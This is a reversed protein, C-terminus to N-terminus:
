YLQKIKQVLEEDDIGELIKDLKNKKQWLKLKDEYFLLKDVTANINKSIANRSVNYNSAMESLTYNNFYYDEFYKKQIDTFLEGYYDYLVIMYDFKDM